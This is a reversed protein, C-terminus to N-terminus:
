EFAKVAVPPVSGKVQVSEEPESGLPIMTCDAPDIEPVGDCVPWNLIVTSTLSEEEGLCVENWDKVRVTFGATATVTVGVVMVTAEPVDVCNVARTVLM